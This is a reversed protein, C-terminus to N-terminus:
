RRAVLPLVTITACLPGDRKLSTAGASNIQALALVAGAFAAPEDAILAHVGKTLNMGEVGSATSVVPLGRQLSLM